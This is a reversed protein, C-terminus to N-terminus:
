NVNNAINLLNKVFELCTYKRLFLEYGEKAIRGREGDLNNYYRAGEVCENVDNFWVLHKRNKFHREMGPVYLTLSLTGTALTRVIRDGFYEELGPYTQVNLVMKSSSCVTNFEEGSVVGGYGNGYCKVVLGVDRLAQIYEDRHNKTGIFSVDAEYKNVPNVPYFEKEDCGEVLGYCNPINMNESLERAVGPWHISFSTNHCHGLVEPCSGRLVDISDMFWLCTKKAYKSCEAVLDSSFGSFKCFLMLDPKFVEAVNRIGWSAAEGGISSLLERYPIHKVQWGLTSFARSIGNNSSGPTFVGVIVVTKM